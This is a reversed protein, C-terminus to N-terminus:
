FVSWCGPSILELSHRDPDRFYVSHGGKEWDVESEIEVGRAKLQAKWRALEAKEVSFALHRSGRGDHPPICGGPGIAPAVSGGKRFLLLVQKDAVGLGCMRPEERYLVPFGFLDTYFAISRELDDVYLSTELVGLVAPL